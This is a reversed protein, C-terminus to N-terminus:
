YLCEASLFASLDICFASWCPCCSPPQREQNWLHTSAGDILSFTGSGTHASGCVDKGALVVPICRRQIPTPKEYNLATCAKLLAKSLRLDPFTQPTGEEEEDDVGADDDEEDNQPVEDQDTIPAPEEDGEQEEIGQESDDEENEIDEGEDESEVARDEGGEGDEEDGDEEDEEEEDSSDEKFDKRGRKGLPVAEVKM